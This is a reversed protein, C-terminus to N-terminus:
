AAAKKLAALAADDPVAVQDLVTDAPIFVYDVTAQNHQELAEPITRRDSIRAANNSALRRLRDVGRFEALGLDVQDPTLRAEAAVRARGNEMMARTEARLQDIRERLEALRDADAM